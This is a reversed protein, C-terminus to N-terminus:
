RRRSPRRVRRTAVRARARDWDLENGPFATLQVLEGENCLATGAVGNAAFRLTEGLGIGPERRAPECDTALLAFGSATETAPPDVPAETESDLADLAYGQVLPGHLSAFVDARAVLDLCLFEGGTAAVAGIQGPRLEVGDKMEALLGRRDEYIDHM